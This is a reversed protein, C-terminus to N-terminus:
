FAMYATSDSLTEVIWESDWPLPTGMGSRRACAKDELWDVTNLFNARAEEPFINMDKLAGRVLDKWKEDSYKLFWQDKVVKVVCPTTCRCVVNETTEFMKDAVGEREFDAVLTKKVESVKMGAYKGTNEKLVGKYFEEKYVIETAKETKPDNQDKIGMRECIEIAPHEGFPDIKILSVPKIEELQDKSIGYGEVLSPNDFLDKLAIWDYPAHSPVSMVVGTSSNPDVFSAPLILVRQNTLPHICYKGILKEGKFEEVEVIGDKQESLKKAADRSVIWEQSDVKIRTYAAEPNLWMNVVGFITEPRLTAAPLVADDIGFKLLTFEVVSAGEGRLRDHDGTPSRCKQCWIVPHTGKVVYGKKKLTLYQWWIFRNFHPHLSTTHFERRWDISHGLRKIAKKSEKIYYRAIYEPDTFKELEEEPVEDIDRFIRIQEEDGKGVRQAAGSIPEGTLHWAWPFLVNYGQMRKFRAYADCKTSTFAHGIHLPGNMYPYPFTIFTKKRGPEPEAEFIKSDEWRKIWKEEIKKLDVAM